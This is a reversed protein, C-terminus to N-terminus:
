KMFGHRKISLGVFCVDVGCWRLVCDSYRYRIVGFLKWTGRYSPIILQPILSVRIRKSQGPYRIRIKM